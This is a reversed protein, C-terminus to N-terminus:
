LRVPFLLVVPGILWFFSLVFGFVVLGFGCVVVFLVV